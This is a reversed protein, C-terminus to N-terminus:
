ENQTEWRHNQVIAQKEDDQIGKAQTRVRAHLNHNNEKRLNTYVNEISVQRQFGLRMLKYCIQTAPKLSPKNRHRSLASVPM